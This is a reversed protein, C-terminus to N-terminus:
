AANLDAPTATAQERERRAARREEVNRQRSNDALFRPAETKRLATNSSMALAYAQALTAHVAAKDLEGSVLLEEATHTHDLFAQAMSTRM